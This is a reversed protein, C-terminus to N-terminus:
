LPDPGVLIRGLSPDHGIEAIEFDVFEGGLANQLPM